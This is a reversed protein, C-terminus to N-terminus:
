QGLVKDKADGLRQLQDKAKDLSNVEADAKQQAGRLDSKLQQKLEAKNFWHNFAGVYVTQGDQNKVTVWFIRDLYQCSDAYFRAQTEDWAAHFIDKDGAKAKDILYTTFQEKPPTPRSLYAGLGLVVLLGVIILNKM